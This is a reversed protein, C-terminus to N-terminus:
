NSRQGDDSGGEKKWPFLFKLWSKKEDPLVGLVVQKEPEIKNLQAFLQKGVSIVRKINSNNYCIKMTAFMEYENSGFTFPNEDAIDMLHIVFQEFSTENNSLYAENVLKIVYQVDEAKNSKIKEQTRETEQLKKEEQEAKKDYIYPQKPDLECLRKAHEVMRRRNIKQDVYGRAWISYAKQMQFFEEYEPTDYPFPNETALQMWCRACQEVVDMNGEKYGQKMNAFMVYMQNNVSM